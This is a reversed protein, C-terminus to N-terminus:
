AWTGVAGIRGLMRQRREAREALIDEARQRALEAQQREATRKVGRSTRAKSGPIIRTTGDALTVKCDNVTERTRKAHSTGDSDTVKRYRLRPDTARVTTATVAGIRRADERLLMEHM